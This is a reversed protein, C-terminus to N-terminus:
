ATPQVMEVTHTKGSSWCSVRVADFHREMHKMQMNYFFFVCVCVCVCVCVPPEGCVYM